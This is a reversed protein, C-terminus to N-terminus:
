MRRNKMWVYAKHMDAGFDKESMFMGNVMTIVRYHELEGNDHPVQEGDCELTIKQLEYYTGMASIHSAVKDFNRYTLTTM